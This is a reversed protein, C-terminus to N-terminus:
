FYFTARRALIEHPMSKSANCSYIFFLLLSMYVCKYIVFQMKRPTQVIFTTESIILMIITKRCSALSWHVNSFLCEIRLDMILYKRTQFLFGNKQILGAILWINIYFLNQILCHIQYFIVISTQLSDSVWTMKSKNVINVIFNISHATERMIHFNSLKHGRVVHIMNWIKHLLPILHLIATTIHM